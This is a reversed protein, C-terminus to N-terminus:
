VLVNPSIWSNKLYQGFFDTNRTSIPTITSLVINRAPKVTLFMAIRIM